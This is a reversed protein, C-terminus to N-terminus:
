KKNKQTVRKNKESHSALTTDDIKKITLLMANVQGSVWFGVPCKVPGGIQQQQVWLIKKTRLKIEKKTKKKKKKFIGFWLVTNATPSPWSRERHIVPM